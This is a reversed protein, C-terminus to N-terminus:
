APTLRHGNGKRFRLSVLMAIEGVIMGLTGGGVIGILINLPKNPKVPTRGPEAPDVVQVMSSKPIEADVKEKEIKLSLLRHMDLIQALGGMEDWYALEQPSPNASIQNGIKLQERLSNLRAEIQGIEAAEQQYHQQLLTFGQRAQETLSKLRYERYSDAVANAIQAAEQPDENYVTIALLKTNRVPTLQMSKRLMLLTEGTQLAGGNNFKKGWKENLGLSDIVNKLVVESGMIEVTTQIFYPDISTGRPYGNAPPEMDPEVKIRTTSAYTEPLIFTIAISTGLTLLFVAIAVAFFTSLPSPARMLGFIKDAMTKRPNFNSWREIVSTRVLDPLVRLWLKVLGWNRSENWADRSQDRFLQAMDAGYANRHAKPYAFLLRQYIMESVALLWNRPSSNM